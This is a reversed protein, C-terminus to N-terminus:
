GSKGVKMRSVKDLGALVSGVLAVMIAYATNVWFQKELLCSLNNPNAELQVLTMSLIIPVVVSKFTNYIRWKFSELQEPTMFRPKENKIEM